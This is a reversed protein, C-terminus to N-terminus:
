DRILAAGGPRRRLVIVNGAIALAIGAVTFASFVYGEVLASLLLALVPTTVGVYSANAMGITRMLALYSVFAAVSGFLALYALSAVYPLRLDFSWHAGTVIGVAAAALAGYLMGWATTPIIARGRLQLRAAAMNGLTAFVTGLIAWFIGLGTDRDGHAAILEPLFLVTVGFVGLTAGTLARATVPTGYMVRQAFVSMFTITSFAVAVLGSVVHQEAWYVCVYNLGFMLAGQVAFVAHDAATYRLSRRTAVCFAGLVVAALAFRWVVSVEPAVSGLQYTIVLWTSGWIATCVAFLWAARNPTGARAASRYEGEPRDPASM